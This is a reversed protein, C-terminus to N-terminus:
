PNPLNSAARINRILEQTAEIMHSSQWEARNLPDGEALEIASECEAIGAYPQGSKALMQCRVVHAHPSQPELAVADNADQLAADLPEGSLLVRRFALMGAAARTDFDGAYVLLASGGISDKPPGNMFPAVAQRQEPRITTLLTSSVIVTGRLRPPIRIPFWWGVPQCRVGYPGPDWFWDTLLWCPDAPHRDLYDKAQWYAQGWDIAPLYRYAKAPGGWFENAYSLYNPYAHLSSAAHLVILCPLAYSMWRLRKALEVCGTAVAILLFPFIPLLYRVGVNISSRLCVALFIGAPLLLFLVERRRQGFAIALGFASAMIMLWSGTTSRILLNFPTSFWPAQSYIRGAVFAPGSQSSISLAGALGELYAEPLAHYNKMAVLVRAATSTADQRAEPLQVKGPYAAFRMGYGLWVIGLAIACILAVALLNRVAAHLTSRQGAHQIFADVVALVCLIPLVVVGSHKALLTLGTALGTLLLFPATRNGAWLYFGFVAFLLLCTVPVDTMVLGGFALVNPEFILLLSAVIATTLGFMRRATMWVLLCLGVAFVFVAMRARALAEPWNGSYFWILGVAAQQVDNGEFPTCDAASNMPLLPAAAIIRALPPHELSFDLAGCKLYRYGSYLHTAEDATQSLQRDSLLLQGFMVACLAAPILWELWPHRRLASHISSVISRPIRGCDPVEVVAVDQGEVVTSM